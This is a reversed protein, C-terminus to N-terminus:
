ATSAYHSPLSQWPIPDGLAVQRCTSGDRITNDLRQIVDLQQTMGRTHYQGHEYLIHRVSGDHNVTFRDTSDSLVSLSCLILRSNCNLHRLHCQCLWCMVNELLGCLSETLVLTKYYQLWWQGLAVCQTCHTVAVTAGHRHQKYLFSLRKPM